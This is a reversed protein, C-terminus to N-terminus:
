LKRDVALDSSRLTFCLIDESSLDVNADVNIVALDEETPKYDGISKKGKNSFSMATKIVATKNDESLLLEIGKSEVFEKFSKVPKPDNAGEMTTDELTTSLGEPDGVTPDMSLDDDADILEELDVIAKLTDHVENTLKTLKETVNKIKKVKM